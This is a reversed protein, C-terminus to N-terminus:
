KRILRELFKTNLREAAYLKLIPLSINHGRVLLFLGIQPAIGAATIKEGCHGRVARFLDM